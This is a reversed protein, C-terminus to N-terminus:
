VAVPESTERRSPIPVIMPVRKRYSAYEPHFQVLNREEFYIAILMYIVSGVAFVMHSATMTPTAWFAIAWGVYLPHRVVNYPVPTKFKLHTYPKKRLYLWVQRLGFLDFHNIAFTSGLVLLWGFVAIGFIVARAASNQVDWVVGGLPRWQWFILALAVVTFLVYTSREAPEPVIQTWVRKFSPRAMISHQLAFVLLLGLDIGLATWFPTTMPGDLKTPTLFGSVFGALYLFSAFFAAYCAVGYVFIAIRKM